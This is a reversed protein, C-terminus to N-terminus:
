ADGTGPPGPPATGRDRKRPTSAIYKAMEHLSVECSQVLSTVYYELWSTLDAEARGEYYDILKGHVNLAQYYSDLDEAYQEEPMILGSM